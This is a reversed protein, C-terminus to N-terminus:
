RIYLRVFGIIEKLEDVQHFEDVEGIKDIENVLYEVIDEKIPVLYELYEIDYPREDISEDFFVFIMFEIYKVALPVSIASIGQFLIEWCMFINKIDDQYEFFDVLRLFCDTNGKKLGEKYSVLAKKFDNKIGECGDEYIQGIYFYASISGLKSAQKLLRLAAHGDEFEGERGAMYCLAKHQVDEWPKTNNVTDSSIDSSKFGETNKTAELVANIADPIPINFFERNDSIRFGKNELFTHVFIEAESCNDFFSSYVVIFEAPVGTTSSLEKAREEPTRTTKGIKVIGNMLPNM